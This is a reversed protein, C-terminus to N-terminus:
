VDLTVEINCSGLYLLMSNVTSQYHHVLDCIVKNSNWSYVIKCMVVSMGSVVM